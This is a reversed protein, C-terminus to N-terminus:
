IGAQEILKLADEDIEITHKKLLEEYAVAYDANRLNNEASLKWSETENEGVYYMIHYGYSTKVIGTEGKEKAAFLWNEFEAVM